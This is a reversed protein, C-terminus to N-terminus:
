LHAVLASQAGPKAGVAISPAATEGGCGATSMTTLAILALALRRIM